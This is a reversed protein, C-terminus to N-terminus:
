SLANSDKVFHNRRDLLLGVATLLTQSIPVPPVHPSKGPDPKAISTRKHTRESLPMTAVAYRAKTKREKTKGTPFIKTIKHKKGKAWATSKKVEGIDSSLALEKVLLEDQAMEDNNDAHFLGNNQM